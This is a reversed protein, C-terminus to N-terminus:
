YDAVVRMFVSVVSSHLTRGGLLSMELVGGGGGGGGGGRKRYLLAVVATKYVASALSNTYRNCGRDELLFHLRSTMSHNIGKQLLFHSTFAPNMRQLQPRSRGSLFLPLKLPLLIHLLLLQHKRYIYGNGNFILQYIRNSRSTQRHQTVPSSFRIVYILALHASLFSCDLIYVDVTVLSWSLQYRPAIAPIM